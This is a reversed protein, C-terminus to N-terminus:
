DGIESKFNEMKEVWHFYRISFAYFIQHVQSCSFVKQLIETIKWVTRSRSIILKPEIKYLFMFNDGTNILFPIDTASM